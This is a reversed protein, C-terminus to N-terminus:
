GDASMYSCDLESADSRITCVEFGEDGREFVKVRGKLEPVEDEMRKHLAKIKEVTAEDLLGVCSEVRRVESKEVAEQGLSMMESEILGLHGIRFKMIKVTEDRGVVDVLEGYDV